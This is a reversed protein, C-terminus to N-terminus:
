RWELHSCFGRGAPACAPLLALMINPSCLTQHHLTGVAAQRQRGLGKSPQNIWGSTGATKSSCTKTRCCLTQIGGNKEEPAHYVSVQLQGVQEERLGAVDRLHFDCVKPQRAARRRRPVSHCSGAGRVVHSGLNHLSGQLHTATHACLRKRGDCVACASCATCARCRRQLRLATECM